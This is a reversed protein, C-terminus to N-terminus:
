QTMKAILVSRDHSITKKRAERETKEREAQERETQERETKERVERVEREGERV